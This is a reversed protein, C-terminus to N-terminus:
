VGALCLAPAMLLLPFFPCVIQRPSFAYNLSRVSAIIRDYRDATDALRSGGQKELLPPHLRMIVPRTGSAIRGERKTRNGIRAIGQRQERCTNSM